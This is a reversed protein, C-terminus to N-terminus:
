ITSTSMSLNIRIPHTTSPCKDCSHSVTRSHSRNHLSVPAYVTYLCYCTHINVSNYIVPAGKQAYHGAAGVRVATNGLPSPVVGDVAAINVTHHPRGNSSPSPRHCDATIYIPRRRGVSTGTSSARQRRTLRETDATVTSSTQRRVARSFTTTRRRGSRCRSGPLCLSM